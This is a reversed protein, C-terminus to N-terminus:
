VRNEPGWWTKREWVLETVGENEGFTGERIRLILM